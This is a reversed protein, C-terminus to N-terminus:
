RRQKFNYLDTESRKLANRSDNLSITLEEKKKSYYSYQRRLTDAESQTLGDSMVTAFLKIEILFAKLANQKQELRNTQDRLKNRRGEMVEHQSKGDSWQKDTQGFGGTTPYDQGSM